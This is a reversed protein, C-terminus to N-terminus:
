EGYRERLLALLTRRHAVSLKDTRQVIWEIEGAISPLPMMDDLIRAIEEIAVDNLATGRVFQAGSTLQRQTEAAVAAKIRETPKM